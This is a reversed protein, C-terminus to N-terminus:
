FRYSKEKLTTNLWNENEKFLFNINNFNFFIITVIKMLNKPKHGNHWGQGVRYRFYSINQYIVFANEKIAYLVPFVKPFHSCNFAFLIYVLYKHGFLIVSEVIGCILMLLSKRYPYLLCIGLITKIKPQMNLTNWALSLPWWIKRRKKKKNQRLNVNQKM